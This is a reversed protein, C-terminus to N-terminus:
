IGLEIHTQGLYMHSRRGITTVCALLPDDWSICEVAEPTTVALILDGVHLVEVVPKLDAWGRSVKGSPDKFEANM